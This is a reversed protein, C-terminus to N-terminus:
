GSGPRAASGTTQESERPAALKPKMFLLLKAALFGVAILVALVLWNYDHAYTRVPFHNSVMIFILPISLYSNHTSRLKGQKGYSMDPERGAEVAEIMRRQGPLIRMWVNAVMITGFLAGIHIYAARPEMVQCLGWTLAVVAVYGLGAFVITNQALATRCALDYLVFGGILVGVGILMVQWSLLAGDSRAIVDGYYYVLTLLLVGSVWTFLAEFKFWHLVRPMLEPKKQKEVRYFGGGHVMWLEGANNEDSSAPVVLNQEMFHFLYTQGIWTVGLVVHFWRLGIHAWALFEDWVAVLNAPWTDDM